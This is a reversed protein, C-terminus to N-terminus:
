ETRDVELFAGGERLKVMASGVADALDVVIPENELRLAFSTAAANDGFANALEDDLYLVGIATRASQSDPRARLM